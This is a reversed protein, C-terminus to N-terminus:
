KVLVEVPVLHNIRSTRRDPDRKDPQRNGKADSCRVVLSAPGRVAPTWSHEWFTWTLSSAQEALKARGWTKGGDTSVEVQGVKNEGAWAAGHLTYAKGVPVVENLSPKAIVAKPDLATVPVLHPLGGDRREFYSYDLTQWFGQHPKDTVIIRTLWKISAMGYWGGVVGRLPYGHAPPLDEGNLKYALLCEPKLVKDLPIGRDYPIPGPSPPDSTIAGQDAGVFIVESAGPKVGAMELVTAIEVGTWNGTSVGGFGWQLGKAAPVLFVRGNGACELTISKTVSKMKLIDDYSLELPKEVLGEIKLKWTAVDIKPVAFHSRVYFQETPTIVDQLSTIPFELNRPEQMRVVLGPFASAPPAPTPEAGQGASMGALWPVAALPATKLLDRRTPAAM